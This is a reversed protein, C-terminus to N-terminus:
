QDVQVLCKIHFLTCFCNLLFLSHMLIHAIQLLLLIQHLCSPSLIPSIPIIFPPKCAKNSQQLLNIMPPTTTGSFLTLRTTQSLSSPFFCYIYLLCHMVICSMAIHPALSSTVCYQMNTIIRPFIQRYNGARQSKDYLHDQHLIHMNMMSLAHSVQLSMTNSNTPNKYSVTM